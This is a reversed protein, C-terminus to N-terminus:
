ADGRNFGAMICFIWSIYPFRVNKQRKKFRDKRRKCKGNVYKCCYFVFPSSYHFILRLDRRRCSMHWVYVLEANPMHARYCSTHKLWSCVLFHIWNVPCSLEMLLIRKVTGPLRIKTNGSLLCTSVTLESLLCMIPVTLIEFNKCYIQFSFM